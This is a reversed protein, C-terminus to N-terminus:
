SGKEQSQVMWCWAKWRWRWFCIVGFGSGVILILKWTWAALTAALKHAWIIAGMVWDAIICNSPTDSPEEPLISVFDAAIVALVLYWLLVLLSVASGFDAVTAIIRKVSASLRRAVLWGAVALVVPGAVVATVLTVDHVIIQLYQWLWSIVSALALFPFAIVFAVYMAPILLM